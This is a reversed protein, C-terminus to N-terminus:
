YISKKTGFKQKQEECLKQFKANVQQKKIREIFEQPVPSHEGNDLFWNHRFRGAVQAVTCPYVSDFPMNFPKECIYYYMDDGEIVFSNGNASDVSIATIKFAEM